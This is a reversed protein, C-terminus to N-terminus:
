QGAGVAADGTGHAAGVDKLAPVSGASRGSRAVGDAHTTGGLPATEAIYRQQNLRRGGRGSVRTVWVQSASAAMPGVAASPVLPKPAATAGGVVLMPMLGVSLSLAVPWTTRPRRVAPLPSSHM